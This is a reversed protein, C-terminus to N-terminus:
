YPEVEATAILPLDEALAKHEHLGARAAEADPYGGLGVRYRLAGAVREVGVWAPLDRGRLQDRLAAARDFSPTRLVVATYAGVPAPDALPVPPGGPPPLAGAASGVPEPEEPLLEPVAEGRLVEPFTLSGVGGSPDASAEVRALLEVLSDDPAGPLSWAEGVAGAHAEDGGAVLVGLSFATVALLLAGTAAAWLHSRSVWLDRASRRRALEGM